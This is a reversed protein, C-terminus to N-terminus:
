QRRRLSSIAAILIVIVMLVVVVGLAPLVWSPRSFTASTDIEVGPLEVSTEPIAVAIESVSGASVTTDISVIQEGNVLAFDGALDGRLAPTALAAGAMSVGADSSGLVALIKKNANWPSQVLEIYGLDAASPLRYTVQLDELVAIDSGSDFRAPLLDTLETIMPHSSPRGVIILDNNQQVESPVNDAFYTPAEALSWQTDDGLNFAVQAAVRWANIDGNPVVFAVSDSAPSLNFFQPYLDLDLLYQNLDVPAPILPLHINSKDFITIWLNAAFFDACVDDPFLNFNIRLRNRGPLLSDEPINVRLHGEQSTANSFPASAIPNGNLEVVLGSLEYSLLTSHAYYLDIYSDGQPVQGPPVYFEVERGTLGLFEVTTTLFGLDAFTRDTSAIQTVLTSSVDAIRAVNPQEIGLLTGSSFAKAAKVVGADTSGSVVAVAKSPNWPSVAMQVIGDDPMGNPAVFEGPGVALPVSGLLPLGEPRGVMILHTSDRLVDPLQGSPMITYLLNEDSFRGLGSVVSFAAQLEQSTPQDPIVITAQEPVVLGPQFIPRPLNALDTEITTNTHPLNVFSTPRIVVIVDLGYLCSEDSILNLRLEQQGDDRDTVFAGPTIPITFTQDGYQDLLITDITVDNYVVQLLGGFVRGLVNANVDANENVLTDFYFALDLTVAAGQTLAWDSPVGFRIVLNDFPGNLTEEQLGLEAFSIEDPTDVSVVEMLEPTPTPDDTQAFGVTPFIAMMVITMGLIFIGLSFAISKNMNLM